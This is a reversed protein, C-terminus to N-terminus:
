KNWMDLLLVAVMVFLACDYGASVYLKYTYRKQKEKRSSVRFRKICAIENRRRDRIVYALGEDLEESIVINPKGVTKSKVFGQVVKPFNVINMRQLFILANGDCDKIFVSSRTTFLMQHSKLVMNGSAHSTRVDVMSKSERLCLPTPNIRFVPNGQRDYVSYVRHKRANGVRIAFITTQSRM